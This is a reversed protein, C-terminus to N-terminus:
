LHTYSVPAQPDPEDASRAGSPHGSDNGIWPRIRVDADAIETAAAELHGVPHTAVDRCRALGDNRGIRHADSVLEDQPCEGRLRCRRHRATASPKRARLGSDAAGPVM